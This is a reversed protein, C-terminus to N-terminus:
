RARSNKLTEIITPMTPYTAGVPTITVYAVITINLRAAEAFFSSPYLATNSDIIAIRDFHLYAMLRLVNLYNYTSSPQMRYYTPYLARSAMEDDTAFGLQPVKLAGSIGATVRTPAIQQPGVLCHINHNQIFDLTGYVSLDPQYAKIDAQVLTFTVGPIFNDANLKEVALKATTGMDKANGLMADVGTSLNSFLQGIRIETPPVYANAGLVALAILLLLKNAHM